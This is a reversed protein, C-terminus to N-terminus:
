EVRLLPWQRLYELDSEEVVGLQWPGRTKAHEIAAEIEEPTAERDVRLRQGPYILDADEIQDQNARYLLPWMFPNDYIQGRQAIDWLNDGPQVVYEEPLRGRVATVLPAILEYARQGEKAQYAQEAQSLRGAEEPTMRGRLAQGEEILPRAKELYHQNIALEAERAAQEALRKARAYDGAAFAEEAASLKAESDRWLAGLERAEAIKERAREIAAQAEARAALEEPSPGAPQAPAAAPAPAAEVTPPQEKPTSACGALLAAVAATLMLRNNNDM